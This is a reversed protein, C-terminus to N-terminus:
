RDPNTVQLIRPSFDQDDVISGNSQRKYNANFQPNFDNRGGYPTPGSMTESIVPKQTVQTFSNLAAQRRYSEEADRRKKHRLFLFVAGALAAIGVIGVVIGAATAAPNVHSGKNGNNSGSTHDSGTVVVTYASHSASTLSASSSSGSSATTSSAGAVPPNAEIGTIYVSYSNQGGCMNIDYGDCAVNCQQNSVEYSAPPLENACLCNSGNWLAMVTYNGPVCVKDHCWGSSQYMYPGKDTFGSWSTYCGKYTAAPVAAVYGATSMLAAAGLATQM